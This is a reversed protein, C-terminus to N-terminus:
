GAASLIQGKLPFSHTWRGGANEYDFCFARYTWTAHGHFPDEVYLWQDGKRSQNCGAIVVFHGNGDPWGIRACIPFGARISRRIVQFSLRGSVIRGGARGVIRLARGLYWQQNCIVAAKSTHPHKCCPQGRHGLRRAMENALKCQCWESQPSFHHSVSSAVAAWCWESHIQHEVEFPINAM